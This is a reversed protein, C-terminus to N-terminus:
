KLLKVIKDKTDKTDVVFDYLLSNNDILIENVNSVLLDYSDSSIAPIFSSNGFDNLKNLLNEMSLGDYTLYKLLTLCCAAISDNFLSVLDTQNVFSFLLNNYVDVGYFKGKYKVLNITHNTKNLNNFASCWVNEVDLNLRDLVDYTFSSFNRCVGEGKVINIGEFFDIEKNVVGYNFDDSSNSFIGLSILSGILNTCSLSDNNVKLERCLRACKDIFNDYLELLDKNEKIIGKRNLNFIFYSSYASRIFEDSKNEGIILSNDDINM